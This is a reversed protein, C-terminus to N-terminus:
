NGTGILLTIKELYIQLRKLAEIQADIISLGDNKALSRKLNLKFGDLFIIINEEFVSLAIPAKVFDAMDYLLLLVEEKLIEYVETGYTSYIAFQHVNNAKAIGYQKVRKDNYELMGKKKDNRIQILEEYFKDIKTKIMVGNQRNEYHFSLLDFYTTNSTQTLEQDIVINELGNVKKLLNIEEPTISNSSNFLTLGELMAEDELLKLYFKEFFKNIRHYLIWHTIMTAIGATLSFIAIEVINTVLISAFYFHLVEFHKLVRYIIYLISTLFVVLFDYTLLKLRLRQKKSKLRKAAYSLEM